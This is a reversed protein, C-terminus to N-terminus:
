ELADLLRDINGILSDKEGLANTMSLLIEVIPLYGSVAKVFFERDGKISLYGILKGQHQVEILEGEDQRPDSLGLIAVHEVKGLACLDCEIKQRAVDLDSNNLLMVLAEERLLLETTRAEVITELNHNLEELQKNSRNLEENLLRNEAKEAYFQRANRLVMILEDDNWPKVQYNWIYGHNVANLVQERDAFASLVVRVTDPQILRSKELFEIGNTGPMRVDSFIVQFQHKELLEMAEEASEALFVECGEDEVTRKLAKLINKQDDVFLVNSM